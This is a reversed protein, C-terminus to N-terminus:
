QRCNISTNLVIDHVIILTMRIWPSFLNALFDGYHKKISQERSFITNLINKNSPGRTCNIHNLVTVLM